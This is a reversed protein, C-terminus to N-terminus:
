NHHVNILRDKNIIEVRNIHFANFIYLNSVKLMRAASIQRFYLSIIKMLNLSKM